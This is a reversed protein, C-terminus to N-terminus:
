SVASNDTNASIDISSLSQQLDSSSRKHLRERVMLSISSQPQVPLSLLPGSRDSFLSSRRNNIIEKLESINKKLQTNEVVLADIQFSIFEFFFRM